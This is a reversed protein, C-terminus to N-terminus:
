GARTYVVNSYDNYDDDEFNIIATDNAANYTLNFYELVTSSVDLEITGDLSGTWTGTYTAGPLVLEYTGDAYITVTYTNSYTGQGTWTGVLNIVEEQRDGSDADDKTLNVPIEYEGYDQYYTGILTGAEADWTLVVDDGDLEFTVTTGELTWTIDRPSTGEYDYIGTGDENLLLRMSNTGATTGTYTGALAALPNEEGAGTDPVYWDPTTVSETPYFEVLYSSTNTGYSYVLYTIGSEDYAAYLGVMASYDSAYAYLYLYDDTIVNDSDTLDADEGLSNLQALITDSDFYMSVMLKYYWYGFGSGANEIDEGDYTYTNDGDSYFESAYYGSSVDYHGQSAFGVNDSLAEIELSDYELGSSMDLTQLSFSFGDGYNLNFGTANLASIYDSLTLGEEQSGAGGEDGGQEGFFDDPDFDTESLAYEVDEFDLGEVYSWDVFDSSSGVLQERELSLLNYSADVIFTYEVYNHTVALSYGDNVESLEYSDTTLNFSVSLGSIYLELEEEFTTTIEKPEQAVNYANYVCRYGNYFYYTYTEDDWDDSDVYGYLNGNADLALYSTLEGGYTDEANGYFATWNPTSGQVAKLIDSAIEEESSEKPFWYEDDFFPEMLANFTEESEEEGYYIEYSTSSTWNIASGAGVLKCDATAKYCYWTNNYIFTLKYNGNAETTLEFDTADALVISSANDFAADYNRSSTLRWGLVRNVGNYTNSAAASHTNAGTTNNIDYYYKEYYYRTRFKTEDDGDEDHRIERGFVNSNDTTLDFNYHDYAGGGGNSYRAQVNVYEFDQYGNTQAAAADLIAQATELGTDEEEAKPYVYLDFEGWELNLEVTYGDKVFTYTENYSTTHDTQEWGDQTLISVWTDMIGSPATNYKIILRDGKVSSGVTISDPDTDGIYFPLIEDLAEVSGFLNAIQTRDYDNTIYEDWSTPGYVTVDTVTVGVSATADDHESWKITISTEGGSLPTVTLGTVKVVTPDSVTFTLNDATADVKEPQGTSPTTVL